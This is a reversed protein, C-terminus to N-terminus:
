PVLNLPSFLWSCSAKIIWGAFCSRFAPLHWGPHPYESQSSSVPCIVGNATYFAQSTQTGTVSQAPALVRSHLGLSILLALLLRITNLPTCTSLYVKWMSSFKLLHFLYIGGCALVCHCDTLSARVEDGGGFYLEGMTNWGRVCCLSTEFCTIYFIEKAFIWRKISQVM